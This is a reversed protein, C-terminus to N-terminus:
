TCLCTVLPVIQTVVTLVKEVGEATARYTEVSPRFQNSENSPVVKVDKKLLKMIDWYPTYEVEEALVTYDPKLFAMTNWLGPRGGSIIM